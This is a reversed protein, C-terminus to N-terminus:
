RILIFRNAKELSKDLEQNDIKKIMEQKNNTDSCSLMLVFM